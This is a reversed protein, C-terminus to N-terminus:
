RAAYDNPLLSLQPTAAASTWSAVAVYLQLAAYDCM